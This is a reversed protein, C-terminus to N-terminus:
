ECHSAPRRARRGILGLFQGDLQHRGRLDEREDLTAFDLVSDADRAKEPPKGNAVRTIVPRSTKVPSTGRGNRATQDDPSECARLALVAFATGAHTIFHHTTPVRPLPHVLPGLRASEVAALRGAGYALTRRLFEPRACFSSRFGPPMDMVPRRPITPAATTGNGNSGLSPLNWGGDARQLERLRAITASREDATMLGDVRVAAWLLMVRHHFSPPPNKSFYRRAIAECRERAAPTEAYAEPAHGVASRPWSPATIITTSMPHGAASSGTSAAM